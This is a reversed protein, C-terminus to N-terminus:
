EKNIIKTSKKWSGLLDYEKTLLKAIYELTSPKASPICQIMVMLQNQLTLCANSAQAQHYKRVKLTEEDIPFSSNAAIIHKVMNASTKIIDNGINYRWKKPVRKDNMVYKTLRVQLELAIKQFELESPKRVRAHVGSM